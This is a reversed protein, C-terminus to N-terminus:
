DPAKLSNLVDVMGAAMKEAGAQFLAANDIGVRSAYPALAQMVLPTAATLKQPGTLALATGIAEVDTIIKIIPDITTSVKAIVADDKEGPILASVVAGYIPVNKGVVLAISGLKKLWSM